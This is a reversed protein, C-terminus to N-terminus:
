CPVDPPNTQVSRIQRCMPAGRGQDLERTVFESFRPDLINIFSKVCSQYESVVERCM